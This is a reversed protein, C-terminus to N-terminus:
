GASCVDYGTGSSSWARVEMAALLLEPEVPAKVRREVVVVGDMSDTRELSLRTTLAAVVVMSVLVLLEKPQVAQEVAAAVTVWSPALFAQRFGWAVTVAALQLLTQALVALAEEVVLLLRPALVSVTVALLHETVELLVWSSRRASFKAEEAAEVVRRQCQLRVGLGTLLLTSALAVLVAVLLLFWFLALRGEM